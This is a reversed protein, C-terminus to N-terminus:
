TFTILMSSAIIIKFGFPMAYCSVSCLVCRIFITFSLYLGEFCYYSYSFFLTFCFLLLKLM